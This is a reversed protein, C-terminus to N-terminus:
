HRRAGSYAGVNNVAIAGSGESVVPPVSGQFGHVPSMRSSVIERAVTAAPEM